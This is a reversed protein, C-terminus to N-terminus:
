GMTPIRTFRFALPKITNLILVSCRKVKQRHSYSWFVAMILNGNNILNCSWDRVRMAWFRDTVIYVLSKDQCCENLRSSLVILSHCGPLRECELSYQPKFRHRFISPLTAFLAGTFRVMGISGIMPKCFYPRWCKASTRPFHPTWVFFPSHIITTVLNCSCRSFEKASRGATTGRDRLCYASRMACAMFGPAKRGPPGVPLRDRCRSLSPLRIRERGFCGHCGRKWM